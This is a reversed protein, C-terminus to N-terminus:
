TRIQGDGLIVWKYTTLEQLAMGLPLPWVQGGPATAHGSRVEFPHASIVVEGGRDTYRVANDLLNAIVEELRHEDGKVRVRVLRFWFPQSKCQNCFKPM